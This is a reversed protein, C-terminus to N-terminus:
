NGKDKLPRALLEYAENGKVREAGFKASWEELQEIAREPDATAFVYGDGNAPEALIMIIRDEEDAPAM